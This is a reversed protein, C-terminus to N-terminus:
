SLNMEKFLNDIFDINKLTKYFYKKKEPDKPEKDQDGYTLFERTNQEDKNILLSIIKAQKQKTLEKKQLYDLIGLKDVLIM